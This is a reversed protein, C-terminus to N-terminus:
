NSRYLIALRFDHTWRCSGWMTFIQANSGNKELQLEARYAKNSSGSTKAKEGTMDFFSLEIVKEVTFDNFMPSSKTKEPM